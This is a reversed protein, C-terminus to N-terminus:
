SETPRSVKMRESSQRLTRPSITLKPLADPGTSGNGGVQQRLLAREVQGSRGQEMIDRRALLELLAGALQEVDDGLALHLDLDLLAERELVRGFGM